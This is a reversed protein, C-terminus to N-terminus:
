RTVTQRHLPLRLARSDVLRASYHTTSPSHRSAQYVEVASAHLTGLDPHRLLELVTRPFLGWATPFGGSAHVLSAETLSGPPGFMTYTKGSGTQGYALLTCSYGELLRSVMPACIAQYAKSQDSGIVVAQAYSFEKGKATVDGSESVYIGAAAGTSSPPRVRVSVEVKATM